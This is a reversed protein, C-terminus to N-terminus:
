NVGLQRSRGILSAGSVDAPVEAEVWTEGRRPGYEDPGDDLRHWAVNLKM